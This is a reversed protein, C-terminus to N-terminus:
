FFLQEGFCLYSCGILIRLEKQEERIAYMAFLSHIM